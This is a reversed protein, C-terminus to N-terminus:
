PAPLAQELLSPSLGAPLLLLLLLVAPLELWAPAGLAPVPVELLVAPVPMLLVAPLEAGLWPPLPPPAGAAPVPWVSPPAHTLVPSMLKSQGNLRGGIMPLQAGCPLQQMRLEFM